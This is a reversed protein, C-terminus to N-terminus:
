KPIHKPHSSVSRSTAKGGKHECIILKITHIASYYEQHFNFDCTLSFEATKQKDTLHFIDLYKHRDIISPAYLNLEWWQVIFPPEKFHEGTPYLIKPSM